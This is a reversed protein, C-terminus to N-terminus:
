RTIECGSITKTNVTQNYGQTKTKSKVFPPRNLLLQRLVHPTNKLSYEFHHKFLDKYKKSFLDQYNEFNYM